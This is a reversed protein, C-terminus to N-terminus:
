VASLIFLRRSRHDGIVNVLHARLAMFIATCLLFVSSVGLVCLIQDVSRALANEETNEM